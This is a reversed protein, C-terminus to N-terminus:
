GNFVDKRTFNSSNFFGTWLPVLNERNWGFQDSLFRDVRLANLPAGAGSVVPEAPVEWTTNALDQRSPSVTSVWTGKLHLM